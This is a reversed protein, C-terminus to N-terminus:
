SIAAARRHRREVASAGAALLVLGFTAAAGIGADDWDFGDPTSVVLTPDRGLDQPLARRYGYENHEAGATPEYNVGLRVNGKDDGVIMTKPGSDLSGEVGTGPLRRDARDDPRVPAAPAEAAVAGPGHIAQDDPRVPADAQASAAPSVAFAAALTAVAIRRIIHSRNM